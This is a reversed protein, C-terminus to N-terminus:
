SKLLIKKKRRLHFTLVSSRIKKYFYFYYHYNNLYCSTKNAFVLLIQRHWFGSLTVRGSNWFGGGELGCLLMSLGLVVDRGRTEM